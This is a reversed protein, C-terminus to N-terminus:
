FQDGIGRAPVDDPYHLWLSRMLPLGRDRAERALTYTYPLLRYRLEDDKRIVPEIAPNNMESELINRRDGPPIPSNTTSFERPGM